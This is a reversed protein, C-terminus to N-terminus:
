AQIDAISARRHKATACSVVFILCKDVVRCLFTIKCSWKWVADRNVKGYFKGPEGSKRRTFHFYYTFKVHLEPCANWFPVELSPAFSSSIGWISACFRSPNMSGQKTLVPVEHHAPTCAELNCSCSFCCRCSWLWSFSSSFFSPMLDLPLNKKGNIQIEHGSVSLYILLGPYTYIPRRTVPLLQTKNQLQAFLVLLWPQTKRIM